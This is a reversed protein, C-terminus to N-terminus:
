AAEGWSARGRFSKGLGDDRRFVLHLTQTVLAIFVLYLVSIGIYAEFSRFTHGEISGAQFTLEAVAVVSALSSDKILQSFMGALSPLVMRFAQPYIIRFLVQRTNLGTSLGAETQGVPVSEIGSRVIEAIYASSHIALGLVACWFSPIRLAALGAYWFLIHVLLPINRCVEVYSHASIRLWWRRSTALTGMLSGAAVAAMLAVLSLQVTLVLGQWLGARYRWLVLWDFDYNM